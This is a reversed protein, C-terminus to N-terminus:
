VKATDPGLMEPGGVQLISGKIYFFIQIKCSSDLHLRYNMADQGALAFCCQPVMHLSFHSHTEWFTHAERHEQPCRSQQAPLLREKCIM